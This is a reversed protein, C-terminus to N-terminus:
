VVANLRVCAIYNPDFLYMHPVRHSRRPCRRQKVPLTGDRCFCSLLLNHLNVSELVVMCVDYKIVLPCAVSQLEM